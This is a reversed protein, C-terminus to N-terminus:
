FVKNIIADNIILWQGPGHHFFAFVFKQRRRPIRLANCFAQILLKDATM